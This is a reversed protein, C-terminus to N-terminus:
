DNAEVEVLNDGSYSARYSPGEIVTDDLVEVECNEIEYTNVTTEQEGEELVLTSGEARVQQDQSLGTSFTQDEGSNCTNQINRGIDSLPGSELADAGGTIIQYLIMLAAVAILAGALFSMAKFPIETGKMAM